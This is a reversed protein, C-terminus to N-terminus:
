TVQTTKEVETVDNAVVSNFLQQAELEKLTGGMTSVEGCSSPQLSYFSGTEGTQNQLTTIINYKLM